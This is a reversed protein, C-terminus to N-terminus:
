NSELWFDAPEPFPELEDDPPFAEWFPDPGPQPARSDIPFQEAVVPDVNLTKITM